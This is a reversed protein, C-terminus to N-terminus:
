VYWYGAVLMLSLFSTWGLTLGIAISLRRMNIWNSLNIRAADYTEQDINKLDEWQNTSLNALERKIGNPFTHAPANRLGNFIMGGGFFFVLLWFVYFVMFWLPEEERLYRVQFIYDLMNVVDSGTWIALVGTVVTVGVRLYNVEKERFVYPLVSQILNFVVMLVVLGVCIWFFVLFGWGVLSWLWDVAQSLTLDNVGKM